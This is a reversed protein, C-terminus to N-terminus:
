EKEQELMADAKALKAAMDEPPTVSRRRIVVILAILIFFVPGLWLWLTALTVPPKYHVFDGYRAKMYDIVEQESKGQKLLSYVKRRMDHAIMADSDAINQNQCMPCRLEATLQLFSERQQPSDFDYKDEVAYTAPLAVFVATLFAIFVRM